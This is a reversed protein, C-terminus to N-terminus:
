NKSEDTINRTTVAPKIGLNNRAAERGASQGRASRGGAGHRSPADAEPGLQGEEAEEAVSSDPVCPAVRRKDSDV